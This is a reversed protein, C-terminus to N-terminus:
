VYEKAACSDTGSDEPCSRSHSKSFAGESISHDESTNATSVSAFPFESDQSRSDEDEKRLFASTAPPHSKQTSSIQYSTKRTWGSDRFFHYVYRSLALNACIIGLNEELSYMTLKFSFLLLHLYKRVGSLSSPM